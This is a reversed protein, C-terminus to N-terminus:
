FLNRKYTHYLDKLERVKEYAKLQLQSVLDYNKDKIADRIETFLSKEDIKDKMLYWRLKHIKEWMVVDLDSVDESTHLKFCSRVLETFDSIIRSELETIWQDIAAAKYSDIIEDSFVDGSLLVNTKDPFQEFLKISEWVTAPPIGFLNNREENTYHEFVDEESRYQRSSELYEADDLSSKSFERELETSTKASNVAYKIGDLMTQYSAAIVLYTNSLPNPSRLEFRTSLPNSLDRILGVLISRNRSPVDVSKGLSSVICIPAEFGPKLRNFSDNSSSAFPGVVEYNKLLGMLAGFGISSLYDQKPDLPSFLNVTKGSKLKLSVGLHTHKGSGAVGEIPKAAFTVELGYSNFIDTVINRVILENDAASLADSYKWDIELQEMIHTQKGTVGITSRIGGVEKHGMEPNLGYKEMIWITKELATRVVGETRKWYQEKLNQSTSLKEEDAKDEPTKVWFELETASTLLIEQIDSLNDVGIQELINKNEKMLEMLTTKFHQVSKKLISRSCVYKGDHMLFSPIRLTGVPMNNEDNMYDFNYDVFWTADLDPIIEVKANNLTAINHLVVSSGDTQIGFKLLENMDDIFVSIPIKEDTDNGRLDVGMFSVFQIEPHSSLIQKLYEM